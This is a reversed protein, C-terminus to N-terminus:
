AARMGQLFEAVTSRLTAASRGLEGSVTQVTQATAQSTEASQSVGAINRSVMDSGRAAEEVNRAIEGTAAGQEEVAAAITTAIEAVQRITGGVHEIRTATEGTAAQMESVQASIEETAKATQNALSKVESAVVAFGKGAEGARAAEITANLALLNTQEAIATILQVVDGIKDAVNTLGRVQADADGAEQVATRTIGMSKEVQRNIEQISSSLEETASAVTQVNASAEQSGTIVAAVQEATQRSVGGMADATAEMNSAAGALEAVLGEVARELEDAMALRADHQEAEAQARMQDQERRLLEVKEANEKFVGVTDAMAGIQDGTGLFPVTISTDGDALAKMSVRLRGIKGTIMVTTTALMAIVILGGALATAIFQSRSNDITEHMVETAERVEGSLSVFIAGVRDAIEEGLDDIRDDLDDFVADGAGSRVAAFLDQRIALDFDNYREVVEALLQREEDTDVITELVPLTESLFSSGEEITVVREPAIDGAARDIIIDMATLLMEITTAKVQELLVLDNVRRENANAASRVDSFAGLVIVATIVLVLVATVAAGVLRLKISLTPM